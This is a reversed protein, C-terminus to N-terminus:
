LLYCFLLLYDDQSRNVLRASSHTQAMGTAVVVRSHRKGSKDDQSQSENAQRLIPYARITFDLKGYEQGRYRGALFAEAILFPISFAAMLAFVFGFVFPNQELL